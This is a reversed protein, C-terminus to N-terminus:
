VHARGIQIPVHCMTQALQQVTTPIDNFDLSRCLEVARLIAVRQQAEVLEEAMKLIAGAPGEAKTGDLVWGIVQLMRTRYGSLTRARLGYAKAIANIDAGTALAEALAQALRQPAYRGRSKFSINKPHM